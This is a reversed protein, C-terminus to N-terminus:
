EAKDLELQGFLQALREVSAGVSRIFQVRHSSLPADVTKGHFLFYENTGNNHKYVLVIELLPGYNFEQPLSDKLYCGVVSVNLTTSRFSRGKGMVIAEFALNFRPARRQGLTTEQAYIKKVQNLDIIVSPEKRLDQLSTFKPSEWVESQSGLPLLELEEEQKPKSWFPIKFNFSNFAM